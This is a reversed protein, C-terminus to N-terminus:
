GLLSSYWRDVSELMEENIEDFYDSSIPIQQMNVLSFKGDDLPLVRAIFIEDKVFVTNDGVTKMEIQTKM